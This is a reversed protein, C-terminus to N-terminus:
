IKDIKAAIVVKNDVAIRSKGYTQHDFSCAHDEPTRHRICFTGACRCVMPILVKKLCKACKSMSDM